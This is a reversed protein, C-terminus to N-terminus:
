KREGKIEKYDALAREVYEIGVQTVAQYMRSDGSGIEVVPVHRIGYKTQLVDRLEDRETVDITEYAIAKERFYGKVEDCYTCGKKSWVVVNVEHSM